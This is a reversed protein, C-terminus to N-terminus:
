KFVVYKQTGSIEVPYIETQSEVPFKGHLILLSKGDPCLDANIKLEFRFDFNQTFSATIDPM